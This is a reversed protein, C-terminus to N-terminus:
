LAQNFWRELQILKANVEIKVGEEWVTLHSVLVWRSKTARMQINRLCNSQKSNSNKNAEGENQNDMNTEKTKANHCEFSFGEKQHCYKKSQM